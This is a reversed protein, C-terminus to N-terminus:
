QMADAAAAAAATNVQLGFHIMERALCAATTTGDGASDNTRGAVQLLWCWRHLQTVHV